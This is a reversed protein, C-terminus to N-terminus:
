SAELLKVWFKTLPRVGERISWRERFLRFLLKTRLSGCYTKIGYLLGSCGVVIWLLFWLGISLLEM